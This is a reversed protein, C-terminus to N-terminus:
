MIINFFIQLAVKKKNVKREVFAQAYKRHITKKEDRKLLFFIIVNFLHLALQM